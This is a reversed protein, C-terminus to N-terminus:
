FRRKYYVCSKQDEPIYKTLAIRHKGKISVWMDPFSDIVAGLETSLPISFGPNKVSACERMGDEHYICRRCSRCKDPRYIGEIVMSFITDLFKETGERRNFVGGYILVLHHLMPLTVGKPNVGLFALENRLMEVTKKELNTIRRLSDFRDIPMLRVMKAITRNIGRLPQKYAVEIWELFHKKDMEWTFPSRISVTEGDKGIMEFAVQNVGGPVDETISISLCKASPQSGDTIINIGLRNAKEIANILTGDITNSGYM